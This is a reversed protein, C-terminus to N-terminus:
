LLFDPVAQGVKLQRASHTADLKKVLKLRPATLPDQEATVYPRLRLREAYASSRDVVLTFEVMDGPALGNLEKVDRVDFPMTMAQMFGPISDHSVLFNNKSRDVKLVMGQLSYREAALISHATLISAVIGPSQRHIKHDELHEEDHRDWHAPPGPSGTIPGLRRTSKLLSIKKSTRLGN